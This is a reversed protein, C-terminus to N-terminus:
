ASRTSGNSSHVNMRHIIGVAVIGYLFNSSATEILHSLRVSALPMLPNSLLHVFHPLALLSAAMLATLWVGSGSSCMVSLIILAFLLGRFLQLLFLDPTNVLANVTHDRFTLLEDTNGYFARLAPNQWAIFYGACWYCVVYLLSLGAFTLIWKKTSMSVTMLTQKQDNTQWRGYVRIAVPIFIFPVPIGMVFLRVLLDPSINISSLFYWTEIQTLLTYSGYYSIGLLLALRWGRLRSQTILWVVLATNAISLILLGTGESLIGPESPTNPFHGAVAMSGLVFLVMYLFILATFRLISKLHM